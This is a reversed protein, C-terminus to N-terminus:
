EEGLFAYERLGAKAITKLLTPMRLPKTLVTIQPLEVFAQADSTVAGGTIFVIRERLEPRAGILRRYLEMGTLRPMMLDCLILDYNHGELLHELAMESDSEIVFHHKRAMRQIARAVMAEDDILYVRVGEVEALETTGARPNSLVVASKDPEIARLSVQMTTGESDTRALALSGGVSEVISRSVYLGLGTGKGVAKTTFLPDFIRRSLDRDIGGGKDSVEIQLEAGKEYCRIQIPADSNGAAEVAHVANTLLNLLVQTLKSESIEGWLTSTVNVSFVTKEKYEPAVLRIALAIAREPDVVDDDSNGGYASLTLDSVIRHIRQVGEIAEGIAEEEEELGECGAISDRLYALNGGVSALPNNIDHGIGGAILELAVQREAVFLEEQTSALEASYKEVRRVLDKNLESIERSNRSVKSSLDVAVLLVMTAFGWDLLFPWNIVGAAVLAEELAFLVFMSFAITNIWAGPEGRLASRLYRYVVALVALWALGMSLNGIITMRPIHYEVGFSPFVTLDHGRLGVGPILIVLALCALVSLMVKDYIELKAGSHQRNFILLLGASCIGLFLNFSSVMERVPGVTDSTIFWLDNLAYISLMFSVLSFTRYYKWGPVRSFYWSAGAMMLNIASAIASVVIVIMM